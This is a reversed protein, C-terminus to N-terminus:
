ELNKKEWVISGSVQKDTKLAALYMMVTCILVDVGSKLLSTHVQMHEEDINTLSLSTQVLITHQVM